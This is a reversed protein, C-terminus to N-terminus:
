VLVLDNTVHHMCLSLDTHAVLRVYDCRKPPLIERLLNVNTCYSCVRAADESLCAPFEASGTSSSSPARSLQLDSTSAAPDSM